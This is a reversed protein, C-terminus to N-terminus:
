LDFKKPPPSGSIGAELIGVELAELAELVRTLRVPLYDCTSALQVQTYVQTPHGFPSAVEECTCALRLFFGM